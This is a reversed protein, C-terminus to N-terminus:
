VSIVVSLGRIRVSDIVTNKLFMQQVAAGTNEATLSSFSSKVALFCSYVKLWGNFGHLIM